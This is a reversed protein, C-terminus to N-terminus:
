RNDEPTWFGNEVDWKHDAVETNIFSRVAGGTRTEWGCSCKAECPWAGRMGSERPILTGDVVVFHRIKHTTAPMPTEKPQQNTNMPPADRRADARTLLPHKPLHGALCCGVHEPMM